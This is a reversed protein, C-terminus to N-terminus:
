VDREPFPPAIDHARQHDDRSQPIWVGQLFDPIRGPFTIGLHQAVSAVIWDHSIALTVLCGNSISLLDDMLCRYADAPTRMGLIFAGDYYDRFLFPNSELQRAVLQQNAILAGPDGLTHSQRVESIEAASAVIIATQQCRLVPSTVVCGVQASQLATGLLSAQYVGFRSIPVDSAPFPGGVRHAHRLLM